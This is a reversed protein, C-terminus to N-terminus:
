FHLEKFGYNQFLMSLRLSFFGSAVEHQFRNDQGILWQANNWFMNIWPNPRFPPEGDNNLQNEGVIMFDGLLVSILPDLHTANLFIARLLSLKMVGLM